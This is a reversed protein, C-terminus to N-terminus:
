SCIHTPPPTTGIASGREHPFSRVSSAVFVVDNWTPGNMALVGLTVVLWYPPQEVRHTGVLWLGFYGVFHITAGLLLTIRPGFRNHRQLRDFVFGPVLGLILSLIFPNAVNQIQVTVM